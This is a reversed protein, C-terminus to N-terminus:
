AGPRASPVTVPGFRRILRLVGYAPWLPLLIGASDVYRTAPFTVLVILLSAALTYGGSLLVLTDIEGPPAPGFPPALRVRRWLYCCGLLVAWLVFAPNGALLRGVLRVSGGAVWAVYSPKEARIVALALRQARANFAVWSEDKGIEARVAGYLVDDSTRALIDFYFLATSAFSRVGNSNLPIPLATQAAVLADRRQIIDAAMPRLDAPLRDLTAPTLMLAAMGSMAFGGFSVINFDGVTARRLGSIALFPLMGACFLALALPVARRRQRSLLTLLAPLVVILPLLSPRLLYALSLFGAARALARGPRWFRACDLTAALAAIAAANAPAEPAVARAWLLLETSCLVALGAALCAAPSLGARSLARTLSAAALIFGLSQLWPVARTGGVAAVLWGYLPLRPAGLCAPWGPLDLYSQTDPVIWPHLGGTAWLALLAAGAAAWFWRMWGPGRWTAAGNPM